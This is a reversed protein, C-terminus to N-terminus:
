VFDRNQENGASQSDILCVVVHSHPIIENAVRTNPESISHVGPSDVLSVDDPLFENPVTIFVEDFKDRLARLQPFEEDANMTTLPRLVRLLDHASTSGFEINIEARGEPEFVTAEIGANEILQRLGTIDEATAKHHLNLVATMKDAKSIHAIKTTCEELITPLYEDGLFANILASKGVNFAGLFVVRYKGEQLEKRKREILTREEPVGGEFDGDEL